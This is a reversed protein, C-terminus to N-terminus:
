ATVDHLNVWTTTICFKTLYKHLLTNTPGFVSKSAVIHDGTQLLALCMTTIAAMGSATALCTTGSELAALREQFAQVTPNTFRSYVNGPETGAFRAAAEAATAFVYSSTTFIPESHEGEPTRKHGTRIGLTAPGWPQDNNPM